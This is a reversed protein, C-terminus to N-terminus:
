EEDLKIEDLINLFEFSFDTLHITRNNLIPDIGGSGFQGKITVEKLLGIQVCKHYTSEEEYTKIPFSYREEPHGNKVSNIFKYFCTIDSENLNSLNSILNTEFYTLKKHKVLKASLNALIKMHLLYLSDKSKEFLSYLYALNQENYKLDEYFIKKEKEDLKDHEYQFYEITQSYRSLKYANVSEGIAELNSMKYFGKCVLLSFNFGEKCVDDTVDIIDYRGQSM